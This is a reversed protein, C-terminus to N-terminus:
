RTRLLCLVVIEVGCFWVRFAFGEWLHEHIIRGECLNKYGSKMIQKFHVFVDAGGLDPFIAANFSKVTGTQLSM